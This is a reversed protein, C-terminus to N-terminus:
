FRVGMGLNIGLSHNVTPPLSSADGFSVFPTDGHFAVHDIVETRFLLRHLDTVM